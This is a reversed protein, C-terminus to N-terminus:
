GNEDLVKVADILKQLDNLINEITEKRKITGFKFRSAEELKFTLEFFQRAQEKPLSFVLKTIDDANPVNSFLEKGYEKNVKEDIRALYEEDNLGPNNKRIELSKEFTVKMLRHTKELFDIIEKADTKELNKKRKELNMMNYFIDFNKIFEEPAMKNFSNSKTIEEEDCAWYEFIDQKNKILHEKLSRIDIGKTECFECFDMLIQFLMSCEAESLGIFDLYEDFLKKIDKKELNKIEINNDFFFKPFDESLTLMAGAMHSYKRSILDEFEEFLTENSAKAAQQSM